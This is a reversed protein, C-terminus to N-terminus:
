RSFIIPENKIGFILRCKAKEVSAVSVGHRKQLQLLTQPFATAAAELMRREQVEEEILFSAYSVLGICFFAVALLLM